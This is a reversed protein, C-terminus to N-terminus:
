LKVRSKTMIRVAAGCFMTGYGFLINLLSTTTALCGTWLVFASLYYGMKGWRAAMVVEPRAQSLLATGGALMAANGASLAALMGVACKVAFRLPSGIEGSVATSVGASAAANISAHLGAGCLAAAISGSLEPVARYDWYLVPRRPDLALAAYFAVCLVPIVVSGTRFLKMEKMNLLLALVLTLLIGMWFAGRLPITLATLKGASALMMWAATVAFFLHLAAWVWHMCKLRCIGGCMMGFMVSAAFIGLWSSMGMQSFFLVIERGSSFGTGAAAALVAAAAHDERKM